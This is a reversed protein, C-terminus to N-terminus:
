FPDTWTTLTLPASGNVRVSQIETTTDDSLINPYNNNYDIRGCVTYAGSPIETITQGRGDVWGSAFGYCGTQATCSVQLSTAATAWSDFAPDCSSLTIKVFVRASTAHQTCLATKCDITVNTLSVKGGSGIPEACSSVLLGFVALGIWFGFTFRCNM